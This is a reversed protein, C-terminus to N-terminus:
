ISIESFELLRSRTRNTIQSKHYANARDRTPLTDDNLVTACWPDGRDRMQFPPVVKGKEWRNRLRRLRSIGRVSTMVSPVVKLVSSFRKPSEEVCAAAIPLPVVAGHGKRAHPSPPNCGPLALREDNIGAPATVTTSPRWQRPNPIHRRRPKIGCFPSGTCGRRLSGQPLDRRTLQNTTLQTRVAYTSSSEDARSGGGGTGYEM